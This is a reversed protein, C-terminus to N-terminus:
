MVTVRWIFSHVYGKHTRVQELYSVLAERNGLWERPLASAPPFKDCSLELTIEFCNTYLYNFDQMGSVCLFLSKVKLKRSCRQCLVYKVNWNNGIHNLFRKDRKPKAIKCYLVEKWLCAYSALISPLSLESSVEYVMVYCKSCFSNNFYVYCAVVLHSQPQKKKKRELEFAQIVWGFFFGWYIWM